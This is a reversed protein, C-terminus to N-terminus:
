FFCQRIWFAEAAGRGCLLSFFYHQETFLFANGTQIDTRTRDLHNLKVPLDAVKIENAEAELVQGVVRDDVALYHLQVGNRIHDPVDAGVVLDDAM